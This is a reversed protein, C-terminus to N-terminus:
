RGHQWIPHSAPGQSSGSLNAESPNQQHQEQAPGGQTQYLNLYGMQGYQSPLQLQQQVQRFGGNQQSQQGQFSYLTNGPLASVTRSGAAGHVWM